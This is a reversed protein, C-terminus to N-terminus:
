SCSLVSMSGRVTTPPIVPGSGEFSFSGCFAYINRNSTKGTNLFLVVQGATDVLDRNALSLISGEYNDAMNEGVGPLDKVLPIKFKALEAAPGIGSLKLLQPSNFAGGSVIVERRAFAQQAAPRTTNKHRPSASYLDSGTM